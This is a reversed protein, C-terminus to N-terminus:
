WTAWVNVYTVKGKLKALRWRRGRIDRLDFDPLPEGVRTKHQPPAARRGSEQFKYSKSARHAAILLLVGVACYVFIRLLLWRIRPTARESEM